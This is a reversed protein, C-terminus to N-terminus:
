INQINNHVYIHMIYDYYLIINVYISVLTSCFTWSLPKRQTLRQTHLSCERSFNKRFHRFFTFLLKRALTKAFTWASMDLNSNYIRHPHALVLMNFCFTITKLAAAVSHLTVLSCVGPVFKLIDCMWTRRVLRPWFTGSFYVDPESFNPSLISKKAFIVNDVHFFKPCGEYIHLYYAYIYIYIYTIQKHIDICYINHETSNYTSVWSSGLRLKSSFEVGWILPSSLLDADRQNLTNNCVELLCSM